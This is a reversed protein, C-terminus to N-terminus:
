TPKPVDEAEKVPDAKTETSESATEPERHKCYKKSTACQALAFLVRLGADALLSYKTRDLFWENISMTAKHLHWGPSRMKWGDSGHKQMGYQFADAVVYIAPGLSRILTLIQFFNM